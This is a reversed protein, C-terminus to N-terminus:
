RGEKLEQLSITGDRLRARYYRREKKEEIAEDRAMIKARYCLRCLGGILQMTEQGCGPCAVGASKERDGKEMGRAKGM